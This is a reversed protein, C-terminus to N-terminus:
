TADTGSETSDSGSAAKERTSDDRDAHHFVVEIAYDSESLLIYSQSTPLGNETTTFTVVAQTIDKSSDHKPTRNKSVGETDLYKIRIKSGRLVRNKDGKSKERARAQNGGGGTVVIPPDVPLIPKKRKSTTKKRTDSKKKAAM